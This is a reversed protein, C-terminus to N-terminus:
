PRSDRKADLTAKGLVAWGNMKDGLHGGSFNIVWPSAQYSKQVPGPSALRWQDMDLGPWCLVVPPCGM